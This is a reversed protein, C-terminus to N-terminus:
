LRSFTSSFAEYLITRSHWNGHFDWMCVLFPCHSRSRGPCWLTQNQKLNGWMLLENKNRNIKQKNKIYIYIYIYLTVQENFSFVLLRKLRNRPMWITILSHSFYYYPALFPSTSSAVGGGQQKEQEYRQVWDGCKSCRSCALIMQSLFLSSIIVFASSGDWVIM